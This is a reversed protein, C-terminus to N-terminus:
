RQAPAHTSGVWARVVHAPSRLRALAPSQAVHLEPREDRCGAFGARSLAVAFAEADAFPDLAQERRTLARISARLARTAGGYRAQAQATHLDVVFSGGDGLGRAVAEFLRARAGADFYSVLGEAVIAPRRAGAVLEALVDTFGDALVDAAVLRHRRGLRARVEPVLRDLARRKIAIMGPLDVDIGPVDRDLAWHLTRPTLGAGLEILRDPAVEDLVADILLHRYALYDRMSPVGPLVRTTWEGLAFFGWYLIAGQRTALRDAWPLGLRRWVYGTYHATPGIREVDGTM